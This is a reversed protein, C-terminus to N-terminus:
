DNSGEAGMDAERALIIYRNDDGLGKRDHSMLAYNKGYYVISKVNEIVFDTPLVDFGIDLTIDGKEVVVGSIIQIDIGAGSNSSIETVVADVEIPIETTIPEGTWEDKGAVSEYLMTIKHTRNETIEKRNQKIFEIDQRTLM